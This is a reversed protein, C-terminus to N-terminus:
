FVRLMLNIAPVYVNSRDQIINGGTQSKLFVHADVNRRIDSLVTIADSLFEKESSTIVPILDHLRKKCLGLTGSNLEWPHNIGLRALEQQLWLNKSSSITTIEVFAYVKAAAL